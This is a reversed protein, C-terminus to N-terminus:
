TSLLKQFKSARNWGWCCGALSAWSVKKRMLPHRSRSETTPRTRDCPKGSQQMYGALGTIKSEFAKPLVKAPSVSRTTLSLDSTETHHLAQLMKVTEAAAPSHESPSPYVHALRRSHSWLTHRAAADATLIHLSYRFCLLDPSRRSSKWCAKEGHCPVHHECPPCIATALMMQWTVPALCLPHMWLLPSLLCQM